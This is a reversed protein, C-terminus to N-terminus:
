TFVARNLVVSVSVLGRATLAEMRVSEVRINQQSLASVWDLWTSFPIAGFEVFVQEVGRAEISTLMETLGANAASTQVLPLLASDSAVPMPLTRLSEIETAQLEISHAQMRLGPLNARLASGTQGASYLLWAYLGSLVVAAIAIILKREQPSRAMWLRQLSLPISNITKVSM